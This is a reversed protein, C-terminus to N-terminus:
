AGIDRPFDDNPLTKQVQKAAVHFFICLYICDQSLLRYLLAFIFLNRVEEKALKSFGFKNTWISEAEEAAPLM